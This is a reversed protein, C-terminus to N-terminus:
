GVLGGELYAYLVDRADKIGNSTYTAGTVAGLESEAVVADFLPQFSGGQYGGSYEYTEESINSTFTLITGEGDVTATSIITSAFGSSHITITSVGANEAVSDIYNTVRNKGITTMVLSEHEPNSISILAYQKDVIATVTEEGILFEYNFKDLDTMDQAKSVVIIGAPATFPTDQDYQKRVLQMIRQIGNSTLTAGSHINIDFTTQMMDKANFQDIFLQDALLASQYQPTENSAVIKMGVIKHTAVDIAFAVQLGAEKGTAEGTYIIAVLAGAKNTVNMKDIIKTTGETLFTVEDREMRYAGLKDALHIVSNKEEEIRLQESNIGLEFLGGFVFLVVFGLIFILQNKKM